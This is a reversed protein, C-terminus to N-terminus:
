EVGMTKILRAQMVQLAGLIRLARGRYQMVHEFTSIRDEILVVFGINPNIEGSKIAALQDELMEVIEDRETKLANSTDVVTPKM